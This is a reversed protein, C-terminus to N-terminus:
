SVVEFDSFFDTGDYYHKGYRVRFKGNATSSKIDILSATTIRYQLLCRVNYGKTTNDEFEDPPYVLGTAESLEFREDNGTEISRIVMNGRRWYMSAGCDKVITELDNEIVGSVKYGSTYVKDRPLNFEALKIGLIRVLRSIIQSATTGKKFTIQMTQKRYKPVKVTKYKTTRTHKHQHKKGNKDTTTTYTVTKSPKKLKYRKKVFYKQAPDAVSSTVKIGSYDNGEKFTITTIKDVGSYKTLTKTIKGTVLVGHDSQYGAIVTITDNKKIKNITTNTLNSIQVTSINPKSDDDFNVEFQIELDANTFVGSGIMIKIYRGYLLPSTSM